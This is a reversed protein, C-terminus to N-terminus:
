SLTVARMPNSVSTALAGHGLDVKECGNAWDRLSRVRAQVLQDLFGDPNATATNAAAEFDSLHIKRRGQMFDTYGLERLRPVIAEILTGLCGKFRPDPDEWMGYLRVAVSRLANQTQEEGRVAMNLLAEVLLLKTKPLFAPNWCGDITYPWHLSQSAGLREANRCLVEAAVLQAKPDASRLAADIVLVATEDLANRDEGWLDLLLVVALDANDLKTLALLGSAVAARDATRDPSATFMAGARM